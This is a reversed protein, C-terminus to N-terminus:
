CLRTWHTPILSSEQAAEASGHVRSVLPHCLSCQLSTRSRHHLCSLGFTSWPAAPSQSFCFSSSSPYLFTSLISALCNHLHQPTTVREGISRHGGFHSQGLGKGEPPETPLWVRCGQSRAAWPSHGSPVASGSHM